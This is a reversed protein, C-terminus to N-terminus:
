SHRRIRRRLLLGSALLGATATVSLPEPVASTASYVLDLRHDTVRLAFSGGPALPNSFGGSGNAPGLEIHFGAPDFGQIGGAATAIPWSYNQSNLFDPVEGNLDAPTIAALSWLNLQYPAASTLHGLDLTGDIVLTDWGSGAGADADVIQWNYNGGSLWTADGHITLVGPSQGPSLTGGSSLDGQLSGSGALTQAAGLTFGSVSSVDLISGSRLTIATAGALANLAGLALTGTSVTIAGSFANAGALSLTGAGTKTFGSGGLKSSITIPGVADIIAASNGIVLEMAGVGSGQHDQITLVKSSANRLIRNAVGNITGGSLTLTGSQAASNGLTLNKTRESTVELGQITLNGGATAMNIGSTTASGYDAFQVIQSASPTAGLSWNSTSTLWASALGTNIWTNTDARTTGGFVLLTASLLCNSKLIRSKM